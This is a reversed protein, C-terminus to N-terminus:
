LDVLFRIFEDCAISESSISMMKGNDKDGYDRIKLPTAIISKMLDFIRDVNLIGGAQAYEDMLDEYSPHNVIAKEIKKKNYRRIQTPDLEGTIYKPVYYYNKERLERKMIVILQNLQKRTVADCVDYSGFRPAFYLFILDLQNDTLDKINDRYFDLEDQIEPDKWDIGLDIAGTKIVDKVVAKHRFYDRESPGHNAIMWKDWKTTRENVADSSEMPMDSYEYRDQQILENRISRDFCVTAFVIASRDHTCKMSIDTFYDILLRTVYHTPTVGSRLRRKWMITDKGETKSIRTMATTALKNFLDIDLIDDFVDAFSSLAAFYLDRDQMKAKKMEDRRVSVYHSAIPIAMRSFISLGMIGRLHDDTLQISEDYLSSGNGNKLQSEDLNYNVMHLVKTILSKTGLASRLMLVFDEPELTFQMNSISFMLYAYQMLLEMDESDETVIFYNIYCLINNLANMYSKKTIEAYSIRKIIDSDSNSDQGFTVKDEFIPTFDFKVVKAGRAVRLYQPIGYTEYARQYQEWTKDTPKFIKDVKPWKKKKPTKPPEEKYENIVVGELPTIESLVKELDNKRKRGM